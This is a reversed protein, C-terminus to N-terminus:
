AGNNIINVDNVATLIAKTIEERIKTTSEGMNSTHIEIKEVLKTINIYMNQPKSGSVNGVATGLGKSKGTDLAGGLSNSSSGGPTFGNSDEKLGDTRRLDFDRLRKEYAAEFALGTNGAASKLSVLGSKIKSADLNFVGTIIEGLASFVSGLEKVAAVFGDFMSVAHKVIDLIAAFAGFLMRIPYTAVGLTFSLVKITGNLLTMESNLYGFGRLLESVSDWVWKFSQAINRMENKFPEWNAAQFLRALALVKSALDAVTPILGMMLETKMNQLRNINAQISNTAEGLGGQFTKKMENAFKPLFDEALLKGDSMFKDLQSTTMGMARAAIQFAGPIREGLQGRLEEAQVKGKGMMQGLALFAGETKEADLGMSAAGIAVGEFIDRTGQGELKSGMMAASLTKFGSASAELPLGLENATEKLFNLNKQGEEASGSAFNIANTMGQLRATSTLIEQGIEKIGYGMLAFGAARKLGDFSNELSNVSKNVNNLKSTMLDKLSIIYDVREAM